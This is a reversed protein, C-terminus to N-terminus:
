PDFTASGGRVPGVPPCIDVLRVPSGLEPSDPGNVVLRRGTLARIGGCTLSLSDAAIAAPGCSEDPGACDRFPRGDGFWTRLSWWIAAGCIIGLTSVAFDLGSAHRGPSFVQAAELAGAALVFLLYLRVLHAKRSFAFGCIVASGSYAGFHELKAPLESRIVIDAPLLAALALVVICVGFVIRCLRNHSEIEILFRRGLARM